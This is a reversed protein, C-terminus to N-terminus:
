YRDTLQMNDATNLEVPSWSSIPFLIFSCVIYCFYCLIYHFGIEMFSVITLLVTSICHISHHYNDRKSLHTVAKIQGLFRLHIVFEQPWLKRVSAKTEPVHYSQQHSRSPFFLIGKSVFGITVPVINLDRNGVM